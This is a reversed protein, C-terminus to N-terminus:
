DGVVSDKRHRTYPGRRVAKGRPDWSDGSVLDLNSRSSILEGLGEPPCVEKEKNLGKGSTGKRWRRRALAEEELLGEGVM